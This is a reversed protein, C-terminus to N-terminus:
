IQISANKSPLGHRAPASRPHPFHLISISPQRVRAGYTSGCGVWNPPARHSWSEPPVQDSGHRQRQERQGRVAAGRLTVRRGVGRVDRRRLGGRRGTVTGREVVVSLVDAADSVGHVVSAQLIAAAPTRDLTTRRAGGAALRVEDGATARAGLAHRLARDLRSRVLALGRPVARRADGAADGAAAIGARRGAAVRRRAAGEDVPRDLPGSDLVRPTGA